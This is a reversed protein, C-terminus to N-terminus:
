LKEDASKKKGARRQRSESLEKKELVRISFGIISIENNM